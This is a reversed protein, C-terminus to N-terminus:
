YPAWSVIVVKQGRLSSLHFETGDLDSLVLEPAEASPLAHGSLTEPGLAWLAADADEVLPMGLREAVAAVDVEDDRVSGAALPVCVEGRCAGQPKLSWGTGTEFEEVPVRLQELLMRRHECVRAIPTCWGVV